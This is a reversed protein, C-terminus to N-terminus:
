RQPRKRGMIGRDLVFRSDSEGAHPITKESDLWQKFQGPTALHLDMRGCKPCIGAIVPFEPWKDSATSVARFNMAVQADMLEVEEKCEPCNKVVAMEELCSEVVRGTMAIVWAM